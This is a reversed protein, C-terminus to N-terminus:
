GLLVVHFRVAILAYYFEVLEGGVGVERSGDSVALAIVESGAFEGALGVLVGGLGVLVGVGGDHGVAFGAAFLDFGRGIRLVM